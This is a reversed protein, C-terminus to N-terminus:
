VRSIICTPPKLVSSALLLLIHALSPHALIHYLTEISIICTECLISGAVHAMACLPPDLSMAHSSMILPPFPVLCFYHEEPECRLHEFICRQWFREMHDWNEVQSHRSGITLNTRRKYLCVLSGFRAPHWLLSHSQLLCVVQRGTGSRIISATSSRTSPMTALTFTSTM